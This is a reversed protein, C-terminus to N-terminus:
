AIRGLVGLVEAPGGIRFRAATPGEGVKVGIDGPRLVAFATEDTTDDGVFVVVDPTYQEILTELAEGKSTRVFGVDIVRKGLHFLDHDLGALTALAAATAAQDDAVQRTHFVMSTAKVEIWAGPTEAAVAELAERVRDFGPPRTVPRGAWVAGHEGVLVVGEPPGLFRELDALPRGSIVAVATSPRRALRGLQDTAGPLPHAESPVSCIEALTGDYDLAVLLRRGEVAELALELTM